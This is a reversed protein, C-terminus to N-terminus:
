VARPVKRPDRESRKSRSAWVSFAGSRPRSSRVKSGTTRFPTRWRAAPLAHGREFITVEHGRLALQWAASLGAWAPGSSPLDRARAARRRPAPLDMSFKGLPGALVAFDIAQRTCATMCPNPCAAGCVSGPFPSYQLVLELAERIKGKRLLNIRDQTPIDSPCAYECPAAFVANNWVPSYARYYGTAVLPVITGPDEVVDGFLGGSDM